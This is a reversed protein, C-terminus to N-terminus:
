FLIILQCSVIDGGGGKLTTQISQAFDILGDNILQQNGFTSALSSTFAM